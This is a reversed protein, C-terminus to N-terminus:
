FTASTGFFRECASESHQSARPKEKHNTSGSQIIRSVEADSCRAFLLGRSGKSRNLRATRHVDQLGPNLCRGHSNPHRTQIQSQNTQGLRHPGSLSLAGAPPRLAHTTHSISISLQLYFTCVCNNCLSSCMYIFIYIYICISIISIVTNTVTSMYM